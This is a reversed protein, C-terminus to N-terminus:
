VFPKGALDEQDGPQEGIFLVSATKPGEGFVTQTANKYLPCGRCGKAAEKLAPLSMREPLFAEASPFEALKLVMGPIEHLTQVPWFRVSQRKVKDCDPCYTTTHHCFRRM